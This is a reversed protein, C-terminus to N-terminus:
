RGSYGAEDWQSGALAMDLVEGCSQVANESSAIHTQVVADVALFLEGQMLRFRGPTSPRDAPCPQGTSILLWGHCVFRGFLALGAQCALTFTGLALAIAVLAQGHTGALELHFDVAAGLFLQFLDAGGTFEVFCVMRKRHGNM